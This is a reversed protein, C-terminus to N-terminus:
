LHSWLAPERTKKVGIIIFKSPWFEISRQLAHPLSNACMLLAHHTFVVKISLLAKSSVSLINM